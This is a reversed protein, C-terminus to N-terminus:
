RWPCAPAHPSFHSAFTTAPTPTPTPIPRGQLCHLCLGEWFLLPQLSMLWPPWCPEALAECHPVERGAESAVRCVAPTLRTGVAVWILGWGGWPWVQSFMKSTEPGIKFNMCMKGKM